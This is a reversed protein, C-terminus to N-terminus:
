LPRDKHYWLTNSSDLYPAKSVHEPNDWSAKILLNKPLGLPPRRKNMPIWGDIDQTPCNKAFHVPKYYNYCRLCVWNDPAPDEIYELWTIDKNCEDIFGAFLQRMTNRSPHERMRYMSKDPTDDTPMVDLHQIAHLLRLREDENTTRSFEESLVHRQDNKRQQHADKAFMAYISEPIFTNAKGHIPMRVVLTIADRPIDTNDGYAFVNKFPKNYDCERMAILCSDAMGKKTTKMCAVMGFHNEICFRLLTWKIFKNDECFCSSRPPRKEKLAMAYESMWVIKCMKM